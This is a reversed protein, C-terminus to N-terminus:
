WSGSVDVTIGREALLEEVGPQITRPAPLLASRDRDGRRFRYGVPTSSSTSKLTIM